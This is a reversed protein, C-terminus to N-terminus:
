KISNELKQAFMWKFFDPEQFVNDWSNHDVGNYETYNINNKYKSIAANMKRSEAVSVVSDNAGHFIWIGTTKAMENAKSEAGGGCIPAAAAIKGPMRWMLEFTAMGGMSLGMIYIRSPDIFPKGSMDEILSILATMAPTAKAEDTFSFKRQGEANTIITVNSWFDNTPCQPVLAIAPYTTLNKRMWERGHVLQKENDDGREGAGHLFVFLPYKKESKAPYMLRYPLDLASTHHKKYLFVGKDEQPLQSTKCSLFGLVSLFLLSYVLKM